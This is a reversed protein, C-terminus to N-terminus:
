QIIRLSREILFLFSLLIFIIVGKILLLNSISLFFPFNMTFRHIWFIYFSNNIKKEVFIRFYNDMINNDVIFTKNFLSLTNLVIFIVLISRPLITIFILLIFFNICYSRNAFNLQSFDLKKVFFIVWFWSKYSIDIYIM